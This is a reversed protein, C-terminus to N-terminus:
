ISSHRRWSEERKERERDKIVRLRTRDGNKKKKKQTQSKKKTRRRNSFFFFLDKKRKKPVHPQSKSFPNKNVYVISEKNTTHFFFFTRKKDGIPCTNPTRHKFSRISSFFDKKKTECMVVSMKM